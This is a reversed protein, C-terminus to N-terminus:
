SSSDEEYSAKLRAIAAPDALTTTDGLAKGAAIDRLLRRMIKGSRTKPLDATFLIEDPRAIPGIVTVVHQKLENALEATAKVGDKVTVFAAIAQGKIEHPKGVVAAEAVSPHDVLASEVEMTGVRHGAVNLVDDVRGLLWFYGDGDRKAGDGTVYVSEGWRNWYQQVYREADGYITRLMAPWPRTLVLYGGGAGVVREGQGNVIEAAIGPFPRTASGPKMPTVAPLPAILIQGTETQWWTDVVPCRGRGIHEYYWMWAEPNIPEGVSGLLRLTKLDHRAPWGTGWRMFSRIATPATYFVTVGHRAIIDWFRDKDPWDPSGEYMVVTAGNCLPGYVVYSHGTVWGIDATCWFVDQEQLDFIWKATAYTGVLYGGTTHVIGKPKGTTGSTYLIYLLDEADMQEPECWPSVGPHMLEHYWQDRGAKIAAPGDVGERKVVVVHEISPTDELAEDAMKKLPVTQGRRFGGDATILVRAAADNIRDRLSAASFGGFVVSHVAGIRACALMAVPLEPVMPLYIAVRDGRNVGLGRLVSAFRNVERFLDWYTLTRRDGPEGEWILAAKNRRATRVHRDLCNVSANIKGDVFWRAFPPKWDLVRSWPASWELERAFSEWFAEPDREAAEYVSDDRVVARAKFGASAEVVRNEHLLAEFNTSDNV